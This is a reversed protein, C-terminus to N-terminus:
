AARFRVNEPKPEGVIMMFQADGFGDNRGPPSPAYFTHPM